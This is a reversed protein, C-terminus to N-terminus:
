RYESHSALWENYDLGPPSGCLARLDANTLKRELVQDQLYLKQEEPSQGTGDGSRDKRRGRRCCVLLFSL